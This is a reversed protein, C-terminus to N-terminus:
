WYFPDYYDAYIGSIHGYPFFTPQWRNGLSQQAPGPIFLATRQRKGDLFFDILVYASVHKFCPKNDYRFHLESTQGPGLPEPSMRDAHLPEGQQKDGKTFLTEVLIFQIPTQSPNALTLVLRVDTDLADSLGQSIVANAGLPNQSPDNLTMPPPASQAHACATLTVFLLLALLYRM